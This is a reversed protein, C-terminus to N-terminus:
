VAIFLFLCAMGRHTLINDCLSSLNQQFSSYWCCCETHHHQPCSHTTLDCPLRKMGESGLEIIRGTSPSMTCSCATGAKQHISDIIIGAVMEDTWTGTSLRSFTTALSTLLLLSTIRENVGFIYLWGSM